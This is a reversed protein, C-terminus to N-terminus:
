KLSLNHRCKKFGNIKIVLCIQIYLRLGLNYVRRPPMLSPTKRARYALPPPPCVISVDSGFVATTFEVQIKRSDSCQKRVFGAKQVFGSETCVRKRVSGQETRSDM